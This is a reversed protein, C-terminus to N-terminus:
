RPLIGYLFIQILRDYFNIIELKLKEAEDFKKQLILNITKSFKFTFINENVARIVAFKEEDSFLLNNDEVKIIEVLKNKVAKIYEIKGKQIGEEINKNFTNLSMNLVVYYTPHESWYDLVRVYYKHLNEYINTEKDPKFCSIHECFKHFIYNVCECFLEEKSHFYHYIKGKSINNDRCIRNLLANEFGNEAFEEITATIIETKSKVNREEQTM